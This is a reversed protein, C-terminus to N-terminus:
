ARLAGSIEEPDVVRRGGGAGQGAGPRRGRGKALSGPGPPSRRLLEPRRSRGPPPQPGRLRQGGVRGAMHRPGGAQSGLALARARGRQADHEQRSMRARRGRGLGRLIGAEAPLYLRWPLEQTEEVARDQHAGFLGRREGVERTLAGKSAQLGREERQRGPSAYVPPRSQLPCSRTPNFNFPVGQCKEQRTPARPPLLPVM